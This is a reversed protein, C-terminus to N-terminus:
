PQTEVSVTTSDPATLTVRVRGAPTVPLPGPPFFRKIVAGYEDPQPTTTAASRLITTVPSNRLDNLDGTQIDHLSTVILRTVPQGFGDRIFSIVLRYAGNPPRRSSTTSTFGILLDRVNRRLRLDDLNPPDLADINGSVIRESVRGLPDTLRARLMFPGSTMDFVAEFARVGAVDPAAAFLVGPTLVGSGPRAQTRPLFVKLAPTEGFTAQAFDYAHVELLFSGRPTEEILADSRFRLSALLPRAQAGEAGDIM